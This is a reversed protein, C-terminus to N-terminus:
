KAGKQMQEKVQQAIRLAHSISYTSYEFDEDLIIVDYLKARHEETLDLKDNLLNKNEKVWKTIELMEVRQKERLRRAQAHQAKELIEGHYKYLSNMRDLEPKVGYYKKCKEGIRKQSQAVKIKELIDIKNKNDRTIREIPTGEIWLRTEGYNRSIEMEMNNGHKNKGIILRYYEDEDRYKNDAWSLNLEEMLKKDQPKLKSLDKIRLIRNLQKNIQINAQKM